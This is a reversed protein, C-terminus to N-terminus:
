KSLDKNFSLFAGLGSGTRKGQGPEIPGLDLRLDMGPGHRERVRARGPLLCSWGEGM